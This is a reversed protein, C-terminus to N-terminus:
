EFLSTTTHFFSVIVNRKKLTGENQAVVGHPIAPIQGGESKLITTMKGHREVEERWVRGGTMKAMKAGAFILIYGEKPVYLNKEEKLYLGPSDQYPHVTIACQDIHKDARSNSQALNINEPYFLKRTVHLYEAANIRDELNKVGTKKYFPGELQDVFEIFRGHIEEHVQRLADVVYEYPTISVNATKLISPYAMSFDFFFKEDKGESRRKHVPGLLCDNHEFYFQMKKLMDANTETFFDNLKSLTKGINAPLYPSELYAIGETLFQEIAERDDFTHQIHNQM